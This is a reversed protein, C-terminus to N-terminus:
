KNNISNNESLEMEEENDSNIHNINKNIYVTNTSCLGSLDNLKRVDNSNSENLISEEYSLDRCFTGSIHKNDSEVYIGTFVGRVDQDGFRKENLYEINWEAPLSKIGKVIDDKNYEFDPYCEKFKQFMYKKTVYSNQKLLFNNNIFYKWNVLQNNTLVDSPVKWHTINNIVIQKVASAFIYFITSKELNTLSKFHNLKGNYNNNDLEEFVKTFKFYLVRKALAPDMSEINLPFNSSIILKSRFKAIFNGNVHIKNYIINGDSLNKLLVGANSNVGKKRTEEMLMLLTNSNLSSLAKNSDSSSNFMNSTLQVTLTNFTEQLLKQFTSKGNNGKGLLVIINHLPDNLLSCAVIYIFYDFSDKSTFYNCLQNYMDDVLNENYLINKDFDYNIYSTVYHLENREKFMHDNLDWYGNAFHILLPNNNLESADVSCRIFVDKMVSSPLNLLKKVGDSFHRKFYDFNNSPILKISEYMMQKLVCVGETNVTGIRVLTNTSICRNYVVKDVIIFSEMFTKAIQEALYNLDDKNRLLLLTTSKGILKCYNQFGGVCSGSFSSM